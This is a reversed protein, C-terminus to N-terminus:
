KGGLLELIKDMGSEIRELKAYIDEEQKNEPAATEHMEAIEEATMERTIGNKNIKM